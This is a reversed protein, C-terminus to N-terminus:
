NLSVARVKIPVSTAHLTDRLAEEFLKFKPTSPTHNNTRRSPVVHQQSLPGEAGLLTTEEEVGADDKTNESGDSVLALVLTSASVMKRGALEEFIYIKQSFVCSYEPFSLSSGSGTSISESHRLM